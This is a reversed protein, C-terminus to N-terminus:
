FSMVGGDCSMAIKQHGKLINRRKQLLARNFLSYEAFSVQVYM